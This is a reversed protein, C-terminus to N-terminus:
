SYDEPPCLIHPLDTPSSIILGDGPFMDVFLDNIYTKVYLTRSLAGSSIVADNLAVNEAILKGERM